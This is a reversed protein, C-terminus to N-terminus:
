FFITAALIMWREKERGEKFICLSLSISKFAIYIKLSLFIVLPSGGLNLAIAKNFIIIPMAKQLEWLHTTVLSLYLLDSLQFNYFFYSSCEYNASLASMIQVIPVNLCEALSLLLCM